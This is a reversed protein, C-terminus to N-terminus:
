TSSARATPASSTSCCRAPPRRAASIGAQDLAEQAAILGLDSGVQDPRMWCRAEIGTNAVLWDHFVRGTMAELEANEVTRAPVCRGTALLHVARPWAASQPPHAPM